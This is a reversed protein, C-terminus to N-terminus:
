VGEVIFKHVIIAVIINLVSQFCLFVFTELWFVINCPVVGLTGGVHPINFFYQPERDDYEFPYESLLSRAIDGLKM